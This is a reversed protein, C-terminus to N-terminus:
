RPIVRALSEADIERGTADRIAITLHHIGPAAYRHSGVVAFQGHGRARIQAPTPASLDGWDIQARFDRALSNVEHFNAVRGRFVRDDRAKLRLGTAALPTPPPPSPSTPTPTGQAGAVTVRTTVTNDNPMHSGPLAIMVTVTYTGPATYTHTEEFAFGDGKPVPIVPGDKQGDGFNILARWNEGPPAMPDTVTFTAFVANSIPVGAAAALPAAPSPSIGDARLARPELIEIAWLRFGTRRPRQDGRSGWIGSM